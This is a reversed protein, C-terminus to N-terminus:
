CGSDTAGKSGLTPTTWGAAANGILRALLQRTHSQPVPGGTVIAQVIDDAEPDHM